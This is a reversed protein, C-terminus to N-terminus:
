KLDKVLRIPFAGARNEQNWIADDSTKEFSLAYGAFPTAETSAWFAVKADPALMNGTSELAAAATVDLGYQSLGSTWDELKLLQGMESWVVSDSQSLNNESAIYECLANWDAKSPLRWGEPAVGAAAVWNYLAGYKQYYESQKAVEVDSTDGPYVYYRMKNASISSALYVSPLYAFNDAMWLQDGVKVTRYTHGDRDDLYSEFRYPKTKFEVTNGFGEGFQNKAYAKVYYVTGIELSHMASTFNSSNGQGDVFTWKNLNSNDNLSYYFGFLSVASTDTRLASFLITGLENEAVETTLKPLLTEDIDDDKCSFLVILLILIAPFVNIKRKM